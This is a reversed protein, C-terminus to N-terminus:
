KLRNVKEKLKQIDESKQIQEELWEKRAVIKLGVEIKNTIKQFITQLETYLKGLLLHAEESSSLVNGFSMPIVPFKNM